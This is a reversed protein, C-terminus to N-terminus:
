KFIFKKICIIYKKAIKRKIFSKCLITNKMNELIKSDIILKKIEYKEKIDIKLSYNIM